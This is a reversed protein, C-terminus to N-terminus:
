STRRRYAGPAIGFRRRFANIFNPLQNYGLQWALQKLPVDLGEDLARRAADMRADLLYDFVTTGYLARFGENLRKSRLAVARALTVLDPPNSLDAVLRERAERVKLVEVSSLQYRSPLESGFLGLQLAVLQMVRSEHYLQAMRGHFLPQYLDQALRRTDRDATRLASLPEKRKLVAREFHAPLDDNSALDELADPTIMVAVSTFTQRADITYLVQRQSLTVAYAQGPDRWRQSANGEAELAGSGNLVYGLILNNTALEGMAHFCFGHENRASARFVSIGDRIVAHELFGNVGNGDLAIRGRADFQKAEDQNPSAFRWQPRM